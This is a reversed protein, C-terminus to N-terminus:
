IIKHLSFQVEEASSWKRKIWIIEHLSFEVGEATSRKRKYHMGFLM